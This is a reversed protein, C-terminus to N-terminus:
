REGEDGDREPRGLRLDQPAGVVHRRDGRRLLLRRRFRVPLARRFGRIGGRRCPARM